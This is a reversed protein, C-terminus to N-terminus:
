NLGTKVDVRLPVDLHMVGEMMRRIEGAAVDVEAEPLEFLLEDHIQLLLRASRGSERLGRDVALMARKILDAASGQIVTNIATREQVNRQRWDRAARERVGPIARKRGSITRVFGQDRCQDLLEEMFEIMGAYKQFYSEIFAAADAKEIGLAKALGFPSQGYVVGFNVAKATRRMSPTIEGLPVGFVESAVRAHIDEEAQFAAILSADRSFHALVRLEIQSYDASLMWWGPEGPVFASRIEHGEETRTPVNQLNPEISSLRGTAAVVQMLSTHVRGSDPHVLAPLATVYTSLLKAYQRYEIVKRPLPHLAALEELVEADTSPGTKTSKIVPM